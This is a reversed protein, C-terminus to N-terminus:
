SRAQRRKEKRGRKRGGGKIKSKRERRKRIEDWRQKLGSNKFGWAPLSVKLEFTHTRGRGSKGRKAGISQISSSLRNLKPDRIPNERCEVRMDSTNKQVSQAMIGQKTKATADVWSSKLVAGALENVGLKGM